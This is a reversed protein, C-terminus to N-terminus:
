TTRAARRWSALSEPVRDRGGVRFGAALRADTDGCRLYALALLVQRDAPLRRWGTGIERQHARVAGDTLAPHSAVAQRVGRDEAGRGEGVDVVIAADEHGRLVRLRGLM